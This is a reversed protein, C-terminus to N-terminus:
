VNNDNIYRKETEQLYFQIMAARSFVFLRNYSTLSHEERCNM